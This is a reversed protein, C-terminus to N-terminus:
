GANGLIFRFLHEISEIGENQLAQLRIASTNNRAWLCAIRVLPRDLEINIPAPVRGHCRENLLDRVPLLRDYCV